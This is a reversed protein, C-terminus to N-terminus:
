FYKRSSVRRHKKRCGECAGGLARLRKNNEREEKSRHKVGEVQVEKGTKSDWIFERARSEGGMSGSNGLSRGLQSGTHSPSIVPLRLIGSFGLLGNAPRYDATNEPASLGLENCFNSAQQDAISRKINALKRNEKLYSGSEPVCDVRSDFRM